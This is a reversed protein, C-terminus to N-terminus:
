GEPAAQHKGGGSLDLIDCLARPPSLSSINPLEQTPQSRVFSWTTEPTQLLPHVTLQGGTGYLGTM